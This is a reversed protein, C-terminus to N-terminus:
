ILRGWKLANKQISVELEPQVLEEGRETFPLYVLTRSEASLKMGPVHPLVAKRPVAISAILVKISELAESFPMTVPFLPSKPTASSAEESVQRLLTLSRALRVFLNPHTKFAPAWFELRSNEQEATAKRPLNALRILDAHSNLRMAADVRAGIRWFPLYVTPAVASRSFEFDLRELGGCRAQWASDCNRCFLVLTDREGELDWGCSPCLTPLFSIGAQSGASCASSIASNDHDPAEIVAANNLGAQHLSCVPRGLIADFLTSGKAYCPAGILSVTEGIFLDHAAPKPLEPRADAPALDGDKALALKFPIAPKLFTGPTGPVVYRLKLVQPRVGLSPQLFKSELGASTSDIIRSAIDNAKISFVIGKLRWYPIHILPETLGDPAKLYYRFYDESSIFLRVRCFSCTLIRDTEELIVPGGCQPCNHEIKWSQVYM